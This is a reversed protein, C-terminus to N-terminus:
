HYITNHAGIYNRTIQRIEMEKKEPYIIHFVEHALVERYADGQLSDLIEIYNSNIWARGLVGRGLINQPVRRVIVGTPMFLDYSKENEETKKNGATSRFRYIFKEDDEEGKKAYVMYAGEGIGYLLVRAEGKSEREPNRDILVPNLGNLGNLGNRIKKNRNEPFESFVLVPENNDVLAGLMEELSFEQLERENNDPSEKKQIYIDRINEPWSKSIILEISNDQGLFIRKKLLLENLGM